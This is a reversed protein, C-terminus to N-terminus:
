KPFSLTKLWCGVVPALLDQRLGTRRGLIKACHHSFREDATPCNPFDPDEAAEAIFADHWNTYERFLITNLQYRAMRKEAATQEGDPVIADVVNADRRM